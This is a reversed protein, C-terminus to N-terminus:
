TTIKKGKEHVLWVTFQDLANRVTRWEQTEMIAQEHLTLDFDALLDRLLQQQTASITKDATRLIEDIGCTM